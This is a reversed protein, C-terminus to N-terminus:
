PTTQGGPSYILTPVFVEPLWRIAHSLSICCETCLAWLCINVNPWPAKLWSGLSTMAWMPWAEVWQAYHSLQNRGHNYHTEEAQANGYSSLTFGRSWRQGTLFLVLSTELCLNEFKECLAGGWINSRQLADMGVLCILLTWNSRFNDLNCLNQRLGHLGNRCWHFALKFANSFLKVFSCVVHIVTQSGSVRSVNFPSHRQPKHIGRSM